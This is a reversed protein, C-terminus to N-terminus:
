CGSKGSILTNWPMHVIIYYMLEVDNLKPLSPLMQSITGAQRSNYLVWKPSQVLPCFVERLLQDDKNVPFIFIFM